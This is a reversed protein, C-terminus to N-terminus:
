TMVPLITLVLLVLRTIAGAATEAGSIVVVLGLRPPRMSAGLLYARVM